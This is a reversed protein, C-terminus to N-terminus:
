QLAQLIRRLEDTYLPVGSTDQEIGVLLTNVYDYRRFHGFFLKVFFDLPWEIILGIITSRGTLFKIREKVFKPYSFLREFRWLRKNRVPLLTDFAHEFAECIRTLYFLLPPTEEYKRIFIKLTKEDLHPQLRYISKACAFVGFLEMHRTRMLNHLEKHILNLKANKRIKFITGQHAPQHLMLRTLHRNFERQKRLCQRVFHSTASCQKVLHSTAFEENKQSAAIEYWISAMSLPDEKFSELLGRLGCYFSDNNRKEYLLLLSSVFHRIDPRIDLTVNAPIYGHICNYILNHEVDKNPYRM